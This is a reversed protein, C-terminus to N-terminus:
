ALLANPAQQAFAPQQPQAFALANRQPPALSSQKGSQAPTTQQSPWFKRGMGIARMLADNAPTGTEGVSQLIQQQEAPSYMDWNFGRYDTNGAIFASHNGYGAGVSTDPATLVAAQRQRLKGIDNRIIVQNAPSILSTGANSAAATIRALDTGGANGADAIARETYKRFIEFATERTLEGPPMPIGLAAARNRIDSVTDMGKGTNIASLADYAHGLNQEQTHWQPLATREEIFQKQDAERSAPQGQPPSVAMPTAPGGSPAQPVPAPAAVSPPVTPAPPTSPTVAPAPAPPTAAPPAATPPAPPPTPPKQFGGGATGLTGDPRVVQGNGISLPAGIARAQAVLAPLAPLPPAATPPVPPTPLATTATPAAPAAAAAPTAPMVATTASPAPAAAPPTPSATAPAASPPANPAGRPRPVYGTAINTGPAPPTPPAGPAPPLGGTGGANPATVSRPQPAMVWTTLPKGQDDLKPTGDPNVMPVETPVNTTTARFEPGTTRTVAGPGAILAGPQGQPGPQTTTLPINYGGVNENVTQGIVQHLQDLVNLGHQFAYNQRDAPNTMGLVRQREANVQAAPFYPLLNDFSSNVNADTPDKAVSLAAVGILKQAGAANNIQEGRLQSTNLLARQMGMTAYPNQAAVSQAKQYDVNGNADTAQQLAQGWAMDAQKNRLDYMQGAVQMGASQAALPNVLVPAPLQSGGHPQNLMQLANITDSM